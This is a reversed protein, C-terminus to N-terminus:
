LNENSPKREKRQIHIEQDRVHRSFMDRLDAIDRMIVYVFFGVLASILIGIITVCLSLLDHTNIENGMNPPPATFGHAAFGKATNLNARNLLEGM